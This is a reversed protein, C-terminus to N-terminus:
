THLNRPKKWALYLLHMACGVPALFIMEVSSLKSNLAYNAVFGLCVGIGVLVALVVWGSLAPPQISVIFKMLYLVGLIGIAGLLILGAFLVMDWSVKGSFLLSFINAFGLCAALMWLLLLPGFCILVEVSLLVFAKKNM